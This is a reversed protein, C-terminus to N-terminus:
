YRNRVSSNEWKVLEQYKVLANRIDGSMDYITALRFLNDATPQYFYLKEYYPVALQSHGQALEAEALLKYGRVLDDNSKWYKITPSLLEKVKEPQGAEAAAQARDLLTIPTVVSGPTSTEIVM